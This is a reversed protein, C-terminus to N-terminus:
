VYIIKHIKVTTVGLAQVIASTSGDIIGIGSSWGGCGQSMLSGGIQVVLGLAQNVKTSNLNRSHPMSSSCCLNSWTSDPRAPSQGGPCGGWPSGTHTNWSSAGRCEDARWSRFTRCARWSPASPPSFWVLEELCHQLVARHPHLLVEKEVVEERLSKGLGQPRLQSFHPGAVRSSKGGPCVLQPRHVWSDFAASDESGFCLLGSGGANSLHCWLALPFLRAHLRWPGDAPEEGRLWWDDTVPWWATAGATVASLTSYRSTSKGATTLLELISGRRGDPSTSCWMRVLPRGTDIRHLIFDPFLSIYAVIINRRKWRWQERIEDGSNASNM